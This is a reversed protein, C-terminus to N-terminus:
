AAMLKNMVALNVWDDHWLYTDYRMKGIGDAQASLGGGSGTQFPTGEFLDFSPIHRGKYQGKYQPLHNADTYHYFFDLRTVGQPLAHCTHIRMRQFEGPPYCGEPLHGPRHHWCPDRMSVTPRGFRANTIKFGTPDIEDSSFRNHIMSNIFLTEANAEIWEALDDLTGCDTMTALVSNTAAILKDARRRVLSKEALKELHRRYKHEAAFLQNTRPCQWASVIPM